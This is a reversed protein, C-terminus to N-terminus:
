ESGELRPIQRARPQVRIPRIEEQAHSRPVPWRAPSRAWQLVAQCGEVRPRLKGHQRARIFPSGIYCPAYSLQSLAHIANVLDPTRDGEGGRAAPAGASPPESWPQRRNRRGQQPVLIRVERPFLETPLACGQWPQPRPNSDRKGSQLLCPVVDRPPATQYSAPSM